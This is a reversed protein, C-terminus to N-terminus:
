DAFERPHHGGAALDLSRMPRGTRFARADHAHHAFEIAIREAEDVAHLAIVAVDHPRPKEVHRRQKKIMGVFNLVHQRGVSLVKALRHGQARVEELSEDAITQQGAFALFPFPLSTQRRGCKM